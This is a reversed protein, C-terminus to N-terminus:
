SDMARRLKETRPKASRLDARRATWLPPDKPDKPYSDNARSEMVKRLEARRLEARRPIAIILEVTRLKSKRLM